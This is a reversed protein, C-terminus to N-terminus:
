IFFTKLIFAVVLYVIVELLPRLFSYIAVQGITMETNTTSGNGGTAVVRLSICIGVAQPFTLVPVQFAPVVFWMWMWLLMQARILTLVVAEVVALMGYRIYQGMDTM